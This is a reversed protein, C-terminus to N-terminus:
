VLVMELLQIAKEANRQDGLEIHSFDRGPSFAFSPSTGWSLPRAEQEAAQQRWFSEAEQQRQNGLQAQTM